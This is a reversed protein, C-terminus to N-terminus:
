WWRLWLVRIRRWPGGASVPRQLLVERPVPVLHSGLGLEQGEELLVLLPLLADDALVADLGHQQQGAPVQAQATVAGVDEQPLRDVLVVAREASM